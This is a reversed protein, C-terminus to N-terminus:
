KKDLKLSLSNICYRLAQPDQVTTLFTGSIPTANAACWKPALCETHNIQTRRRRSARRCPGYFKAM